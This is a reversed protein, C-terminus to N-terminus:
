SNIAPDSVIEIKSLINAAILKSEEDGFGCIYSVARKIPEQGRITPDEAIRSLMERYNPGHLAVVYNQIKINMEPTVSYM